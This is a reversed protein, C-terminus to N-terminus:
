LDVPCGNIEGGRMGDALWYISLVVVVLALLSVELGELPLLTVLGAAGFLSLLGALLATGCAACGAGLTGLVLGLAGSGSEQVSLGHERLHYTVMAVDVGILAALVVLVIATPLAYISGLFPYLGQLITLRADLPLDGTLAFLAPELNQTLVFLTLGALAALVAVVAYLPGSLVLRATRGMLRWDRARTPLRPLRSTVSM